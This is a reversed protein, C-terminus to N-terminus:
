VLDDLGLRSEVFVRNEADVFGIGTTLPVKDEPEMGEDHTRGSTKSMPCGELGTYGKLQASLLGAPGPIEAIGIIGPLELALAAAALM